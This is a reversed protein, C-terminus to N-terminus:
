NTPSARCQGTEGRQKRRSCWTRDTRLFAQLMYADLEKKLPEWLVITVRAIGQKPLPGLKLDAVTSGTCRASRPAPTSRGSGARIAPGGPRETDSLGGTLRDIWLRGDPNLMMEVIAPDEVWGTITPGMATRLMRVSRSAAESKLFVTGV